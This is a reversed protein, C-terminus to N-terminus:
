QHQLVCLWRWLSDNLVESTVRQLVLPPLDSRESVQVEANTSIIEDSSSSSSSSSNNSDTTAILGACHQVAEIFREIEQVTTGSRTPLWFVLRGQPKLRQAAVQFLMILAAQSDGM